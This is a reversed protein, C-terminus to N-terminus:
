YVDRFRYAMETSIQPFERRALRGVVDREPILVRRLASLDRRIALIPRVLNDGAGLIAQDELENLQTISRSGGDHVTVLYNAGLFFDVDRTAFEHQSAQFDIGHLIVYLYQ